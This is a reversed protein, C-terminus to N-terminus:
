NSVEIPNEFSHYNNVIVPFFTTERDWLTPWWKTVAWWDTQQGQRDDGGGCKPQNSSIVSGPTADSCVITGFDNQLQMQVSKQYKVWICLWIRGLFHTSKFYGLLKACEEWFRQCVLYTITVDSSPTYDTWILWFTTTTVVSLALLCISLSDGFSSWSRDDM